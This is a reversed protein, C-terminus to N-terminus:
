RRGADDGAESAVDARRVPDLDVLHDLGVRRDVGAVGAAREEVRARPHDADVRLDRGGALGPVAVDADPEGDGRVGDALDDRPELLALSDLARVEADHGPADRRGRAVARDHARDAGAPGARAAADLGAVDDDGDVSAADVVRRVDRGADLALRRAVDHGHLDLAVALGDREVDLQALPRPLARSQADNSSRPRQPSGAPASAILKPAGSTRATSMTAAALGCRVTATGTSRAAIMSAVSTDPDISAVSTLGERRTAARRAARLKTLPTGRPTLMPTMANLPRGRTSCLGVGSRASMSVASLRRVGLPPVAVPSAIMEASRTRRWGVPMLLFGGGLAM